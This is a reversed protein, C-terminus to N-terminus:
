SSEEQCEKCLRFDEGMVESFAAVAANLAPLSLLTAISPKM